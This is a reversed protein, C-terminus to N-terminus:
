GAPPPPGPLRLGALEQELDLAVEVFRGAVLRPRRQPLGLDRNPPLLHLEGVGLAIM